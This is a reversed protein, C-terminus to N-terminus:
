RSGTSTSDEVLVPWSEPSCAGSAESCRCSQPSSLGAQVHSELCGACGRGGAEFCCSLPGFALVVDFQAGAFASLDRADAVQWAEIAIELEADADADADADIMHRRNAALQAESLDTVTVRASLEALLATFRGPGAGIELVRNGPRLHRMLLRRHVELFVPAPLNRVM